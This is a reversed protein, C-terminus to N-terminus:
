ATRRGRRLLTPKIYFAYLCGLTIIVWGANMIWMGERNGVGLISYSWRDDAFGSQYLTWRGVTTIQNTEVRDTGPEGHDPAVRIESHYSKIGRRGPFYEVWLKRAAITADLEHRQRSYIIEWTGANPITVELPRAEVDPYLSFLLWHTSSYDATPGRGRLELRIASMARARIGARRQARTALVPRQQGPDAGHAAPAWAVVYPVYGTIRADCPVGDLPLDIPMDWREFWGTPITLGLINITPRPRKPPVPVGASDALLGAATDYHERYIPLDPIVYARREDETVNRVYLVPTEDDYFGDQPDPAVLRADITPVLPQWASPGPSLRVTRNAGDAGLVDLEVQQPLVDVYEVRRVTFSLSGGTHPMVTSWTEGEVAPLRGVVGSNNGITARIEISPSEILVDGEVKTGFYILAGGVLLALGVHATLAGANPKVWRTRFFTATLVSLTLLIVLTAFFWHQFTQMETMELSWRLPAWGSMVSAYILILVLLIIAFWISAFLRLLPNRLRAAPTVSAQDAKM